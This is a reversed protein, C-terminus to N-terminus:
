GGYCNHPIPITTTGVRRGFYKLLAFNYNRPVQKIL